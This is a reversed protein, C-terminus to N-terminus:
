DRSGEESAHPEQHVRLALLFPPGARGVLSPLLGRRGTAPDGSSRRTALHGALLYTDAHMLWFYLHLTRVIYFQAILVLVVLSLGLWSGWVGGLAKFPLEDVSHGNYKWAARFRIHCLCISGWTFLTSLGSLALLWNFVTDGAAVVNVYAIPGFLLVAIVSFLPRGSKDVYAFAKPAYGTEALATLVRSGAYVCSM